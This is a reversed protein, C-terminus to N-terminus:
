FQFYLFPSYSVFFLHCVALPFACATVVRAAVTGLGAGHEALQQSNPLLLAVLPAGVLALTQLNDLRFGLALERDAGLGAMAQLMRLAGEMSTARFFVWGVAVIALTVLQQGFAPLFGYLSRKGMWREFALWAGQYAGWAVFTWAAGHWLGGLLMTAALNVYTRAPGRRNGGLPIYLYDRLWTSLTIHWRRWFETISRSKYPSDFNVPFEFGFLLGLGIAMDSYGSFDFYIQFTYALAGLWAEAASPEALAFVKDAVLAVSDAVLLKKLFGVQFLFAGRAFKDKTHTRELLQDALEQYRVIPGAVLQPFLSVFCAFDIWSKLPRAHGRYIDISYSMTQFTYFSIGVPLIIKAAALPAVGLPALLANLSDVGFNFYKFYGLLGLNVTISLLLWRKRAREAATRAAPEASAAIADNAAGIRAGAVFDVLTSFLMLGVFDPRWWGYFVYSALTLWLSRARKPLLFYVGLVAPLFWFLFIQSVFIV